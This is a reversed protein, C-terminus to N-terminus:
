KPPLEEMRRAPPPVVEVPSKKRAHTAPAPTTRKAASRQNKAAASKNNKKKKVAPKPKKAASSPKHTTVGSDRAPIGFERMPASPLGSGGSTTEGSRRAAAESGLPPPTTQVPLMAVRQRTVSPELPLDLSLNTRPVPVVGDARPACGAVGSTLAMLLAFRGVGKWELLDAMGAAGRAMAGVGKNIKVYWGAM